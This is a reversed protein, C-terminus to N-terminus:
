SKCTNGVRIQNEPCKKICTNNYIRVYGPSCVKYLECVNGRLYRGNPCKCRNGMNFGGICPKCENGFLVTRNLCRCTEGRIDKIIQGGMCYNRDEFSGKLRPIYKSSVFAIFLLFILIKM